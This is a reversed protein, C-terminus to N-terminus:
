SLVLRRGGPLGAWVPRASGRHEEFSLLSWRARPEQVSSVALQFEDLTKTVPVGAGRLRGRLNSEDRAALEVELLTRLLEDPAWRQVSATQLVEPRLVGALASWAATHTAKGV